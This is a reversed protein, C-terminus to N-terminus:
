VVSKRDSPDKQQKSGVAATGPAAKLMEAVLPTLTPCKGAEAALTTEATGGVKVRSDWGRRWEFWGWKLAKYLFIRAM